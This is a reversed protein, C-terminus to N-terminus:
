FVFLGAKGLCLMCGVNNKFFFTKSFASGYVFSFVRTKKFSLFSSDFCEAEIMCVLGSLAWPFKMTALCLM